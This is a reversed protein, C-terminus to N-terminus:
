QYPWNGRLVKSCYDCKGVLCRLDIDKIDFANPDVEKNKYKLV